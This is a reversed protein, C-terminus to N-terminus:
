PDPFFNSRFFTPIASFTSSKEERVKKRLKKRPEYLVLPAVSIASWEKKKIIKNSSHFLLTAHYLQFLILFDKM